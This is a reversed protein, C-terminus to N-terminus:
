GKEMTELQEAAFAAAAKAGASLRNEGELKQAIEVAAQFHWRALATNGEDREVAGLHSHVDVSNGLGKIASRLEQVAVTRKGLKYAVWGLTDRFTLVKPYASVAVKAWGYATELQTIKPEKLQTVLYAANNAAAPNPTKQAKLIREYLVLAEEVKRATTLVDAQKQVMAINGREERALDRYIRAAATYRRDILMLTARTMRAAVSNTPRLLGLVETYRQADPTGRVALAAAWQSTPRGRLIAMTWKRGLTPLRMRFAISAKLLKVAERPISGDRAGAAVLEQAISRAYLGGPGFQTLQETAGRVNGLAVYLLVADSPTLVRVRRAVAAASLQKLRNTWRVPQGGSQLTAAVGLLVDAMQASAPAPLMKLAAAPDSDMRLLAGIRAWLPSKTGAAITQCLQSAEVLDGKRVMAQIAVFVVAASPSRGVPMRKPDTFARYTAIARDYKEGALLVRMKQLVVSGSRPFTQELPNLIQLKAYDTEALAALLLQANLYQSAYRPIKRLQERAPKKRGLRAFSQGLVLQLRPNSGFGLKSLKEFSEIAPAQLGWSALLSGRRLLAASAGASGRKALRDLTHLALVPRNERDYVAVLTLYAPFNGPQHEIAKNFLDITENWRNLAALVHAKLLYARADNPLVRIADDCIQLAAESNKLRVYLAAIRRLLSTDEQTRAIGQLEELVVEAESGRNAATLFRAKALLAQNRWRDEAALLDLTRVADDIKGARALSAAQLLAARSRIAEKVGHRDRVVKRYCAAAKAHQGVRTHLWGKAMEVLEPRSGKIARLRGGVMEPSGEGILVRALYIYPSLADPSNVLLKTLVEVAERTQNTAQYANGLLVLLDPDDPRDELAALCLEICREPQGNLLRVLAVTADQARGKELIPIMHEVSKGEALGVRVLVLMAESNSDGLPELARRCEDYEGNDYFAKGLALRYTANNPEIKLASRFSDVAQPIRRTSAYLRGLEYFVRPQNPRDTLQTILIREAEPARKLSRLALAKAIWGQANAPSSEAAEIAFKRSETKKGLVAYGVSIAMLMEPRGAAIKEAKALTERAVGPQNTREATTVLLRVAAPNEPHHHYFQYADKYAEDYHGEGILSEALIRRAGPHTPNLSAAERLAQMGRAKQGLALAVRGYYYQVEPWRSADSRLQYLLKEAEAFKSQSLLMKGLILRALANSKEVKLVEDCLRKTTKTDGCLLAIEARYVKLNLEDPWSRILRDFKEGARRLKVQWGGYDMNRNGRSLEDLELRAAPTPPPADLALIATRARELSVRDDRRLCLDVLQEAAKARSPEEEVVKLLSVIAAKAERDSEESATKSQANKEKALEEEKAETAMKAEQKLRASLAGMAASLYLHNRGRDAEVDLVTKRDTSTAKDLAQNAKRYLAAVKRLDPAQLNRAGRLRNAEWAYSNAQILVLESDGPLRRLGEKLTARAETYKGLRNSAQGFYLYGWRKEPNKAIYKTAEKAALEFDGAQIANLIKARHRKETNRGSILVYGGVVGGIVLVIIAILIIRRKM